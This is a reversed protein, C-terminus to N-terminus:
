IKVQNRGSEKAEYLKKDARDLTDNLSSDGDKFIACGASLTVQLQLEEKKFQFNAVALRIRDATLSISALSSFTGVIVIEEGGYRVSIDDERTYESVAHAVQKLVTDGFAHGYNDNVQKFHDIDIFIVGLLRAPDRIHNAVLSPTMETLFRKTYLGTLEDRIALDNLKRIFFHGVFIMSGMFFLFGFIVYGSAQILTTRINNHMDDLYVGTGLVWGWPKFYGVYSIKPYNLTEGPKTWTYSVWGNNATATKIFERIYFKGNSDTDNLLDVGVKDKRYPHMIIQGEVNNIWFYGNKSYVASELADMALKKAEQESYIGAASLQHFGRLVNLGAETLYKTQLKREHQIADSFSTYFFYLFTIGGIATILAISILSVKIKKRSINKPIM